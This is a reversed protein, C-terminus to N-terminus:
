WLNKKVAKELVKGVEASIGIVQQIISELKEKKEPHDDNKTLLDLAKSILSRLKKEKEEDFKEWDIKNERTTVNSQTRM